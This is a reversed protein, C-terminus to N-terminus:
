KLSSLNFLSNKQRQEPKEYNTFLNLCDAQNINRSHNSNNENTIATINNSNNNINRVSSASIFGNNKNSSETEYNRNNNYNNNSYKLRKTFKNQYKSLDREGQSRDLIDNKDYVINRKRNRIYIQSKQYNQIDTDNINYGKSNYYNTLASNNNIEIVNQCYMKKQNEINDEGIKGVVEFTRKKEIHQEPKTKFLVIIYGIGCLTLSM